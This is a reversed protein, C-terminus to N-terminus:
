GQRLKLMAIMVCHMSAPYAGYTGLLALADVPPCSAVRIAVVGIHQLTTASLLGLAWLEILLDVKQSERLPGPLCLGVQPPLTHM